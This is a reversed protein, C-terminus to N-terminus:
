AACLCVCVVVSSGILLRLLLATPRLQWVYLTTLEPPVTFAGITSVTVLAGDSGTSAVVASTNAPIPVALPQQADRKAVRFNWVSRPSKLESVCTCSLNAWSTPCAGNAPTSLSKTVIAPAGDCFADWNSGGRVSRLEVQGDELQALVGFWGAGQGQTTISPSPATSSGNNGNAGNGGAQPTASVVLARSTALAVVVLLMTRRFTLGHSHCSVM